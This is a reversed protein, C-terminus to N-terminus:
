YLFNMLPVLLELKSSVVYLALNDLPESLSSDLIESPVGLLAM